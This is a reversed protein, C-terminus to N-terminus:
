KENGLISNDRWDLRNSIYYWYGFYIALVPSILDAIDTDVVVSPM